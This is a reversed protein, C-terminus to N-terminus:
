LKRQLAQLDEWAGRSALRAQDLWTDPKALSLLREQALIEELRTLETQALDAYTQIGAHQLIASTKLGIGKIRTLDDPAPSMMDDDPMKHLLHTLDIIKSAKMRDMMQRKRLRRAKRMGRLILAIPVLLLTGIAVAWRQRRSLACVTEQRLIQRM